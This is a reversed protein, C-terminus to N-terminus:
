PSRLGREKMADSRNGPTTVARGGRSRAAVLHEATVIQTRGRRTTASIIKVSPKGVRLPRPLPHRHLEPDKARELDHPRRAGEVQAPGLSPPQQRAQHDMGALRHARVPQHLLQPSVAAGLLPVSPASRRRAAACAAPPLLPSGPSRAQLNRAGPRRRLHPRAGSRASLSLPPASASGARRSAM